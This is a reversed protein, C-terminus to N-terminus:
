LCVEDVVDVISSLLGVCHGTRLGDANATPMAGFSLIQPEPNINIPSQALDTHQLGYSYLGYSYLGYIFIYAM